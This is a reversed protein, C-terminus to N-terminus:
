SDIFYFVFKGCERSRVVDTRKWRSAGSMKDFM